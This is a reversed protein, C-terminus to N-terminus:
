SMWGENPAAFAAWASQKPLKPAPKMDDPLSAFRRMMYAYRVASILDDHEKVLKGNMDRHYLRLEEFFPSLHSFVKFTGARMRQLLEWLGSEVSVGGQPWTAHDALMRFGAAKYDLALVQGGGKEHQHGDHPWASHVGTAWGKTAAWAQSANQESQRWAQTLYIFDTDGDIALQCVAQPHDWGFDHGNIRRWHPPIPFPDVKIESEAVPFVLGAGLVPVGKSRMDRQWEPIAALVQEKAEATLHPADDWTVNLLFQGPQLSEMYQAVLPTMGNEPTFTLVVSGGKGLNGTTTRTLCQPYIAQDIPEEDIWVYDIGDGMLVHQGQSYSKLSLFSYGGSVHRIHVDKILDKTHQSKIISNHDICDGPIMGTGDPKGAVMDGFLKRQIVDRIQEGSVGLAWCRPAFTFRLGEWDPPYQGTLHYAMEAAASETKGVRNAAMLARQKFQAGASFFKRQWGYAEFSKLRSTRRRRHYETILEAAQAKEAVSMARSASLSGM